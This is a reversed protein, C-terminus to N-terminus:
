NFVPHSLEEDARIFGDCLLVSGSEELVKVKVEVSIIPYSPIQYTNKPVMFAMKGTRSIM